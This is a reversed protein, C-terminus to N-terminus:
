QFYYKLRLRIVNDVSNFKDEITNRSFQLMYIGEFRIKYNLRYGVGMRFRTRNAFREQIDKSTSFFFEADGIFYWMNDTFYTRKNIPYIFEGRLRLRNGIDWSDVSKDHTWREEFRTLLRIQPRKAPTFYIRTGLVARVEFTNIKHQQLTYSLPAAAIIDLYSNVNYEFAPTVNISYWHDGGSLLTQTSIENQFLYRQKYTYNLETDMWLQSDSTTQSSVLVPHFLLVAPLFFYLFLKKEADNGKKHTIRSCYHM